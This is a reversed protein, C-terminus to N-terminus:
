HWEQVSLSVGCRMASVGMLRTDADGNILAGRCCSISSECRVIGMSYRERTAQTLPFAEGVKPM